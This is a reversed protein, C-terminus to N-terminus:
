EALLSEIPAALRAQAQREAWLLKSAFETLQAPMGKDWVILGQNLRLEWKKLEGWVHRYSLGLSKAAAAISGHAHVSQLLDM